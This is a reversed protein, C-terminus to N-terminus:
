PCPQEFADVGLLELVDLVEFALSLEFRVRPDSLPRGLLEATQRMRYKVTSVHVHCREAVATRRGGVSLYVRLTELVHGGRKRDHKAVPGLFERVVAIMQETDPADLLFRLPGLSPHSVVRGPGAKRALAVAAHAEKLATGLNRRRTSLGALAQIGGKEAKLLLSAIADGADEATQTLAILVQGGRVAMLATGDGLIRSLTVRVVFELDRAARPDLPEVVALCREAALDVGFRESRLLLGETWAGDAQLIEELLEGRLRWEAELAARDKMMELAIVTAAQELANTELDTLNQEGLVTIHGLQEEGAIIRVSREDVGPCVDHDISVEAPEEGAGAAYLWNRAVGPRGVLVIDRDVLSALQRGIGHIGGGTLAAENLTKHLAFTRELLDKKSSLDRYLRSNAISAAAQGALAMFVAVATETFDTPTRSGGYLAGLPQGGHIMPAALLSIVGEAELTRKVLETTPHEYERHDRVVVARRERVALGGVGKGVQVWMRVFDETVAGSAVKVTVRNREEDVLALWTVDVSMLRRAQQVIFGLIEDSSLEKAHIQSSVEILAEYAAQREIDQLSSALLLAVHRVAATLTPTEPPAPVDIALLGLHRGAQDLLETTWPADWDGDVAAVGDMADVLHQALADGGVSAFTPEGSEDRWIAACTEAEAACRVLELATRLSRAITAPCARTPVAQISM